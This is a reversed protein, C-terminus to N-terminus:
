RKECSSTLEQILEYLKMFEPNYEIEYEESGIQTKQDALIKEKDMVKVEISSYNSTTVVDSKKKSLIIEDSRNIYFRKILDVLQNVQTTNDMEYKFDDEDCYLKLVDESYELRHLRAVYGNWHKIEISSFEKNSDSSSTNYTTEPVINDDMKKQSKGNSCSSTLVVISLVCLLYSM